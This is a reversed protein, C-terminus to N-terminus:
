IKAISSYNAFKRQYFPSRQKVDDFQTVLLSLQRRELERTDLTEIASNWLENTMAVHTAGDGKAFRFRWTASLTQM